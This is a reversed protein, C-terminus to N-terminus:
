AGAGLQAPERVPAHALTGFLSNRAIDTITVDATEGILSAPAEVQVLPLYPSRGVIQGDHRGPREFLV